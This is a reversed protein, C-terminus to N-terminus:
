MNKIVLPVCIFITSLTEGSVNSKASTGFVHASNNENPANGETRAIVHPWRERRLYILVSKNESDNVVCFTLVFLDTGKKTHGRKRISARVRDAVQHSYSDLRSRLVMTTIGVYRVQSQAIFAYIWGTSDYWALSHPRIRDKHLEWHTIREFGGAALQSYIDPTNM